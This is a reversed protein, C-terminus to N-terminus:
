LKTTMKTDLEEYKPPNIGRSQDTTMAIHDNFGPPSNIPVMQILKPQYAANPFGRSYSSTDLIIM